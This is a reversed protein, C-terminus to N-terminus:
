SETIYANLMDTAESLFDRENPLSTDPGTIMLDYVPKMLDEKSDFENGLETALSHMKAASLIAGDEEDVGALQRFEQASPRSKLEQESMNERAREAAKRTAASERSTATTVSGAKKKMSSVDKYGSSRGYGYVDSVVMKSSTREEPQVRKAATTQRSTTAPKSATQQKPMASHKYPDIPDAQNEYRARTQQKQKKVASVIACIVIIIFILSGM